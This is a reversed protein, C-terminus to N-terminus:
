SELAGVADVEALDWEVRANPLEHTGQIGEAQSCFVLNSNLSDTLKTLLGSRM